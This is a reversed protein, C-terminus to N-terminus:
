FQTLITDALEDTWSVEIPETLEHSKAFDVEFLDRALEGVIHPDSTALNLEHNTRLSLKNFNASGFTAWGDAVLAKVHTMGPYLFVRVGGRVLTNATVLNSSKGAGFDNDSPLVVRVDVGRARAALLGKVVAPDYLYPNELWIRQRARSLSKVVAKRIQVEGPRTYLRRLPAWDQRPERPLPKAPVLAAEAFALDGGPGAHAWAKRFDSEFRTVIPGRVEAMLDHWEYRYERGLNMGGLYSVWGDFTFVKSHDSSFWPNLFPRAAVKSDAKLYAGISGPPVFSERMPTAPASLAAGQSAMLDYLVRVKVETSRRKLADAIEVAVDDTDFICVEFHIANTAAAIRQLLAPFFQEGDVLLRVAGPELETDTLDDLEAEWAALDMPPNTRLPPPPQAANGRGTPLLGAFSQASMHALRFASSVPNKALAVGHSELALSGLSRVTGVLQPAGRPDDATQPNALMVCRRHAFDLLIFALGRGGPEQTLCFLDQGPHSSRLRAEAIRALHLAMEAASYRATLELGDPKQTFPVSKIGGAADRYIVGESLFTQFYIGTNPQAPALERRAAEALESRAARNLVVAERWASDPRPLNPPTRDLKLTAHYYRFGRSQLHSPAWDAVFTVLRADNTYYLRVNDGKVFARPQALQRALDLKAAARTEAPTVAAPVRQALGAILGLCVVQALRRVRLPDTRHHKV